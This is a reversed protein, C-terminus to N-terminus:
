DDLAGDLPSTEIHRRARKTDGGENDQVKRKGIKRGARAKPGWNEEPNPLFRPVGQQQAKSLAKQARAFNAKLVPEKSLIKNAYTLHPNPKTPHEKVWSRIIDWLVSMPANTKTGLPNAHTSSVSYGANVIASRFLNAAPPTCKVTKCMDHLSVYLPADKLEEQVVTLISHIKEYAGFSEKQAHILNLLSDVFGQHHIPASWIPGGMYFASGTEECAQPVPPSVAASFKVSQDMTKMQGVPQLFFSDCGVSQYVYALKTPTQKVMKASTFVRVYVRVYFDVSLSLLPVIYRKYRNAHAEITSLLIRVAMEHCYPRRLSMSGYKSWCVESNNGCLVAMDTATVLLMGGDAVAQVASDLFIAPSGYPDLDIAHYALPNNLMLIRADQCSSQIKEPSIDNFALNRDIADTAKRDFDNAVVFDLDKVEKAYRIARLGSAALGELLKFSEREVKIAAPDEADDTRAHGNRNEAEHGNTKELEVNGKTGGADKSAAVDKTQAVRGKRTRVLEGNEIEQRLNSLFQRLVAVSMDRNVIQAKNYFADEDEERQLISAAGERLVRYGPPM